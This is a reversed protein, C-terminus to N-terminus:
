KRPCIKCAAFYTLTNRCILSKKPSWRLNKTCLNKIKRSRSNEGRICWAESSVNLPHTPGRRSHPSEFLKRYFLVERAQFGREDNKALRRRDTSRSISEGKNYMLNDKVQMLASTVFWCSIRVGNFPIKKLKPPKNELVSWM